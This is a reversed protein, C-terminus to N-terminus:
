SKNTIFHIPNRLYDYLKNLHVEVQIVTRHVYGSVIFHTPYLVELM